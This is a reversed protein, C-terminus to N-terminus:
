SGLEEWRELCQMLEEELEAARTTAKTITTQDQKYFEPDSMQKSLEAQEAELTEIRDPLDDLERQEKYSLKKKSEAPGAVPKKEAKPEDEVPQPTDSRQRLYDDYGGDYEHIQGDGEFALTSTVVNNIFARDHSVLLVSGAYNSVLEELLELTESDLDNTPEDLVM